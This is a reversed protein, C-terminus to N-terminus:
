RNKGKWFPCYPCDQGEVYDIGEEHICGIIGNTTITTKVNHQKIFELIERSVKFDNVVNAGAWRKIDVCDGGPENIIGVAIKVPTRDDPGYYAITAAPFKTKEKNDM